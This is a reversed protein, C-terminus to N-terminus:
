AARPEDEEPLLFEIGYQPGTTVLGGILEPTPPPVPAARDEVREFVEEFFREIGAPAFTLLMRMPESGQNKFCHKSGLPLTVSDGATAVFTEEDIQVKCEGELIYLAEDERNHIHPPPGGGPPVLAEMVFFAGDTEEGTTLFTYLDGPGWFAQGTGSRTHLAEPHARM